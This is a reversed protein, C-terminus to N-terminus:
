ARARIVAADREEAPVSSNIDSVQAEIIARNYTDGISKVLSTKGSLKYAIRAALALAFAEVFKMSFLAVLSIDYTYVLSAEDVNTLLCLTEDGANEIRYPVADATLGAPNEILRAAIYDSPIQYRYSWRVPIPFRRQLCHAPM